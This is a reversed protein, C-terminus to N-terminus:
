SNFLSPTTSLFYSLLLFHFLFARGLNLLKTKWTSVAFNNVSKIDLKLFSIPLYFCFHPSTFDVTTMSWTIQPLEPSLSLSYSPSNLCHCQATRRWSIRQRSPLYMTWGYLAWIANKFQLLFLKDANLSTSRFTPLLPPAHSPTPTQQFRVCSLNHRWVGLQRSVVTESERVGTKSKGM